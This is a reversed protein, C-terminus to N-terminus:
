KAPIANLENVIVNIINEGPIDSEVDASIPQGSSVVPIFTGYGSILKIAAGAENYKSAYFTKTKLVEEPDYGQTDGDLRHLLMKKIHEQLGNWEDDTLNFAGGKEKASDWKFKGPHPYAIKTDFEIQTRMSYPCDDWGDAVAATGGASIVKSSRSSGGVIGGGTGQRAIWAWAYYEENENLESVDFVLDSGTYDKYLLCPTDFNNLLDFSSWGCVNESCVLKLITEDIGSYSEPNSWHPDWHLSKEQSHSDNGMGLSQMIEEYVVHKITENEASMDVAIAPCSVVVGTTPNRGMFVTWRGQGQLNMTSDLGFRIIMRYDDGIDRNYYYDDSDKDACNDFDPDGNRTEMDRKTFTKGTIAALDDLAGCAMAYYTRKQSDTFNAESDFLVITPIEPEKQYRVKPTPERLNGDSDTYGSEYLSTFPLGEYYKGGETGRFLTTFLYDKETEKYDTNVKNRNRRRIELFYRGTGENTVTITKKEANYSLSPSWLSNHMKYDLREDEDYLYSEYISDNAGNFFELHVKHTGSSLTKPSDKRAHHYTNINFVGRFAADSDMEAAYEYEDDITMVVATCIDPQTDEIRGHCFLVGNYDYFDGDLLAM